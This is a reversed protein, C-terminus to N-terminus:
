GGWERTVHALVVRHGDPDEAVLDIRAGTGWTVGPVVFRGAPTTRRDAREAFQGADTLALLTLPPADDRLVLRGRLHQRTRDPDVPDLELSTVWPHPPLWTRVVRETSRDLWGVVAGDLLDAVEAVDRRGHDDARLFAEVQATTWRTHRAFAECWAEDPAAADPAVEEFGRPDLALEPPLVAALGPWADVLQPARLALRRVAETELAGLGPNSRPPAAAYTAGVRTGLHAATDGVEDYAVVELVDLMGSLREVIDLEDLVQPESDLWEAFTQLNGRRRTLERYLRRAYDLHNRLYLIGTASEVLGEARLRDLLDALAEVHGPRSWAEASLLVTPAPCSRVEEVLDDVLAEWRARDDRHRWVLPAHRIGVEPEDFTLGTRPYLIGDALLDDHHAWAWDQIASSGAKYTGCHIVFRRPGDAPRHVLMADRFDTFRARAAEWDFSWLPDPVRWSPGYNLELLAEPDRPVAFTHGAVEAAALPVLAEAPLGGPTHPWVWARGAEVWAPFLDIGVGGSSRAKTHLYGRAEFEAELVGAETLRIRLDHWAAAVSAADDGPVLVALDVDDDHGVFDGDRVVGLLTGSVLFAEAGYSRLREVLEAVEAWLDSSDMSALARHYGHPGLAYPRLTEVCDAWFRDYDGPRDAAALRDRLRGLHRRTQGPREHHAINLQVSAKLWPPRRRAKRPLADLAARLDDYPSASGERAVQSRVSAIVAGPRAGPESQEM